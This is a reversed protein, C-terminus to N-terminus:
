RERAGLYSYFAVHHLTLATCLTVECGQNTMDHRQRANINDHVEEELRDLLTAIRSAVRKWELLNRETCTPRRTPTTDWHPEGNQKYCEDCRDCIIQKNSKNQKEM